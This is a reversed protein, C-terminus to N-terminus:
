NSIRGRFMFGVALGAVAGLAGWLLADHSYDDTMWNIFSVRGYQRGSSFIAYGVAVGIVAGLVSAALLTQHKM